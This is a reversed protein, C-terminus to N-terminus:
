RIKPFKWRAAAAIGSSAFAAGSGSGVGGDATHDCGAQSHLNQFIM